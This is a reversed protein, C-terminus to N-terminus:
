AGVEGQKPPSGVLEEFLAVTEPHLMGKPDAGRDADSIVDCLERFVRQVGPLNGAARAARMLLRYM